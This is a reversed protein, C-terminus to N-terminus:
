VLRKFRYGMKSERSTQWDPSEWQGTSANKPARSTRRMLRATYHRSKVKSDFVFLNLKRKEVM